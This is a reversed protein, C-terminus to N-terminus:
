AALAAKKGPTLLSGTEKLSCGSTSWYKGSILVTRSACSSACRGVACRACCRANPTAPTTPSLNPAPIPSIRQGTPASGSCTEAMGQPTQRRAGCPKSRPVWLHLQQPAPCDATSTQHGHRAPNNWNGIFVIVANRRRATSCCQRRSPAKNESRNPIPILRYPPNMKALKAAITPIFVAIVNM